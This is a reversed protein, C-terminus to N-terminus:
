EILATTGDSLKAYAEQGSPLLFMVNVSGTTKLSCLRREMYYAHFYNGFRTVEAMVFIVDGTPFTVSQRKKMAWHSMSGKVPEMIFTAVVQIDGEDDTHANPIFTLELTRETM